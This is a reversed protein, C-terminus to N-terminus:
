RHKKSTRPRKKRWILIGTIMIIGLFIIVMLPPLAKKWWPDQLDNQSKKGKGKLIYLTSDVEHKYMQHAKKRYRNETTIFEVIKKILRDKDKNTLNGKIIEKKIETLLNKLNNDTGNQAIKEEAKNKKEKNTPDQKSEEVAKKTEDYMNDDNLGNDKIQQDLFKAVTERYKAPNIKQLRKEIAQIESEKEQYATTSRFKKIQNLINELKSYDDWNEKQKAQGLLEQLISKEEKAARKNKIEALVQDRIEKIADETAAQTINKEWNRNTIESEDVVPKKALEARIQNIAQQRLNILIQNQSQQSKAQRKKKIDALVKNKIQNIQNESTANQIDAGWNQNNSDLESNQIEPDKLLEGDVKAIALNKLIQLPDSSNKTNRKSQIDALVRNKITTIQTLDTANQIDKKWNQNSSELESSVVKPNQSLVNDIKTIAVNREAQLPDVGGGAGLGSSTEEFSEEKPCFDKGNRREWVGMEGEKRVRRCKHCQRAKIGKSKLYEFLCDNDCCYETKDNYRKWFNEYFKKTIHCQPCERTPLPNGSSGNEKFTFAYGHTEPTYGKEKEFMRACMETCFFRKSIESKHSNNQRLFFNLPKGEYCKKGYQPCGNSFPETQHDEDYKERHGAKSLSEYALQIDVWRNNDYNKDKEPRFKLALERYRTRIEKDTASPLLRLIGYCDLEFYVAMIKNNELNYRTNLRLKLKINV